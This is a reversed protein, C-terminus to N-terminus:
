VVFSFSEILSKAVVHFSPSVAGRDIGHVIQHKETKM